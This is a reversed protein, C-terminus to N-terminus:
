KRKDTVTYIIPLIERNMTSYTRLMCSLVLESYCNETKRLKEIKESDGQGGGRAQLIIWAASYVKIM